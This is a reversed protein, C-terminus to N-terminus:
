PCSLVEAKRKVWSASPVPVFVVFEDGGVHGVIDGARFSSRITHKFSEIVTDGFAHGLLDNAQKFVDIDFVFLAHLQKPSEPLRQEILRRTASKTYLGTTEDTMALKQTRSEQRKEADINQRYVLMHIAGDDDNKAILATIRLWYYEEGTSIMSEYRLEDCGAEYAALVNQPEFTELYGVRFEEKIQREAM